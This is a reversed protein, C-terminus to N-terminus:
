RTSPRMHDCEVRRPRIPGEPDHARVRPDQGVAFRGAGDISRTVGEGGEFPGPRPKEGLTLQTEQVRRASTTRDHDRRRREREDGVRDIGPTVGLPPEVGRSETCQRRQSVVPREIVDLAVALGLGRRGGVGTDLVAHARLGERATGLDPEIRDHARDRQWGTEAEVEAPDALPVGGIQDRLFEYVGPGPGYADIETAIQADHTGARVVVRPLRGEVRRVECGPDSAQAETM